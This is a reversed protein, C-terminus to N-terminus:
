PVITGCECVNAYGLNKILAKPHHCRKPPPPTTAPADVGRAVGKKMVKEKRPARSTIPTAPPPVAEAIAVAKMTAARIFQSRSLGAAKACKDVQALETEDWRNPVLKM